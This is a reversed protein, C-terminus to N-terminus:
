TSTFLIPVATTTRTYAGRIGIRKRIKEYKPPYQYEITRLDFLLRATTFKWKEILRVSNPILWTISWGIITRKIGKGYFVINSSQELHVTRSKKSLFLSFWELISDESDFMLRSWLVEIQNSKPRDIVGLYREKERQIAFELFAVAKAAMIKTM